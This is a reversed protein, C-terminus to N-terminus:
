KAKMEASAAEEHAHWADADEDPCRGVALVLNEDRAAPILEVEARWESALQTEQPVV